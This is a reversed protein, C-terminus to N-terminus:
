NYIVLVIKGDQSRLGVLTMKSTENYFGPVEFGNITVKTDEFLEPKSLSSAKKVVTYQDGDMKVSIPNNDKVNVNLVNIREKGTESTVKIEFRNDGESVEREGSGDLSAYSDEKNANIQIKETEAPVELSYELQDKSFGPTIQHGEVSLHSLYNNNSKERPKVVNITISKSGSFKQGSTSSVDLANVTITATGLSKATFRYSKSGNEIWESSSGGSLVDGNSSTISFRGILGSADVTITVSGGQTVTRTSASIGLGAALVASNLFIFTFVILAITRTFFKRM